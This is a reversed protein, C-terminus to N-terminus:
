AYILDDYHRRDLPHTFSHTLLLHPFESFWTKLSNLICSLDGGVFFCVKADPFKLPLKTTEIDWAIVRLLPRDTKEPLEKIETHKSGPVPTM